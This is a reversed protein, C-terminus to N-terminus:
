RTARSVKLELHNKAPDDSVTVKLGSTAYDAYKPHVLSRPPRPGSEVTPPPIMVIVRHEGVFVGDTEGLTSFKFSGDPQIAGQASPLTHKDGPEILELEVRCDTVPTGDTLLVKIDVPVTKPMGGDRSCGASGLGCLAITVLWRTGAHLVIVEVIAVSRSPDEAVLPSIRAM